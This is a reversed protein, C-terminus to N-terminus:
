IMSSGGINCSLLMFMMSRNLWHIPQDRTTSPLYTKIVDWKETLLQQGCQLRMLSLSFNSTLIAWRILRFVAQGGWLSPFLSSEAGSQLETSDSVDMVLTLVRLPMVCYKMPKWHPCSWKPVNSSNQYQNLHFWVHQATTQTTEHPVAESRNVSSPSVSTSSSLKSPFFNDNELNNHIHQIHFPKQPYSLYFFFLIHGRPQFHWRFSLNKM